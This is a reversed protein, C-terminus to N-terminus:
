ANSINYENDKNYISKAMLRERESIDIATGISNTQGRGKDDGDSLVDPHGMRYEDDVNYNNKALLVDRYQKGNDLLRSM